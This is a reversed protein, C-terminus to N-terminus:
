VRANHESVEGISKDRAIRFIQFKSGWLIRRLYEISWIIVGAELHPVDLKMTKSHCGQHHSRGLSCFWVLFVLVPEASIDEMSLRVSDEM